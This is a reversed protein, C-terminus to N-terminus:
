RRRIFYSKLLRIQESDLSGFESDSRSCFVVNGNFTDHPTRFNAHLELEDRQANAVMWFDGFRIIEIYGGVIAQFSELTNEIKELKLPRGVRVVAVLINNEM